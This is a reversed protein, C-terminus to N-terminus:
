LLSSLLSKTVILPFELPIVIYATNTESAAPRTRKFYAPSEFISHQIIGERLFVDHDAITIEKAESTAMAATSAIHM